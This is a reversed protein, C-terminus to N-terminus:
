DLKVIKYGLKALYKKIEWLSILKQQVNLYDNLTIPNEKKNTLEGRAGSLTFGLVKVLHHIKKLDEIDEQTYRRDKWGTKKKMPKLFDGFESEWYRLCSTTVNFMKAAQGITWYKKKIQKEQYPMKM